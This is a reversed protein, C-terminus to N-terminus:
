RQAYECFFKAFLAKLSWQAEKTPMLFLSRSSFGVLFLVFNAAVTYILTFLSATPVQRVDGIRSYMWWTILINENVIRVNAEMKAPNSLAHRYKLSTLWRTAYAITEHWIKDCSKMYWLMYGKLYWIASDIKYATLIQDGSNKKIRRKAGCFRPKIEATDM